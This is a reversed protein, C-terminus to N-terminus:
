RELGKYLQLVQLLKMLSDNSINEKKLQDIVKELERNVPAVGDCKAVPPPPAEGAVIIRRISAWNGSGAVKFLIRDVKSFDLGSFDFTFDQVNGDITAKYQKITFGAKDLPAALVDIKDGPRASVKAGTITIKNTTLGTLYPLESQKTDWGFAAVRYKPAKPTVFKVSGLSSQDLFVPPTNLTFVRVENIKLELATHGHKIEIRKLVRAKWYASSYELLHDRTKAPIKQTVTEEFGDDFRLVVQISFDVPGPNLWTSNVTIKSIEHDLTNNFISSYLRLIMGNPGVESQPTQGSKVEWGKDIVIGQAFLGASVLLLAFLFSKRVM